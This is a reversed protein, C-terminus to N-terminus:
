RAPKAERANELLRAQLTIDPAVDLRQEIIIRAHM